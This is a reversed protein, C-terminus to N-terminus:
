VRARGDKNWCDGAGCSTLEQGLKMAPCRACEPWVESDERDVAKGIIPSMEPLRAVSRSRCRDDHCSWRWGKLIPAPSHIRERESNSSLFFHVLIKLKPEWLM